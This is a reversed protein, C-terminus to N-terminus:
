VQIWLRRATVVTRSMLQAEQPGDGPAAHTSLVRSGGRGEWAEAWRKHLWHRPAHHTTEEFFDLMTDVHQGTIEHVTCAAHM